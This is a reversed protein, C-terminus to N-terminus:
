RRARKLRRATDVLAQEDDGEVCELAELVRQESEMHADERTDAGSGETEEGSQDEDSSVEAPQDECPSKPRRAADVVKHLASMADM